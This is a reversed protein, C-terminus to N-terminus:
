RKKKGKAPPKAQAKGSVKKPAKAPMHKPAATRPKSPPEPAPKVPTKSEKGKKGETEFLGIQNADKPVTSGGKGGNPGGNKPTDGNGPEEDDPPVAAVDSVHDGADLKILRVGQTNRGAVRIDSAHQRIVVGRNTVIVVDDKEMVEKIAVMRGTKDTTKVTIIGKGGRHSIRYEETDSRKGFGSETAVLITTSTRRLVVGGIVQDNKNLRIARVGSAARGM